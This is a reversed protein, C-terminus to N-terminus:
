PDSMKIKNDTISNLFDQVNDFPEVPELDDVEFPGQEYSDYSVGNEKLESLKKLM